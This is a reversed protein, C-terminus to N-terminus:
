EGTLGEDIMSLLVGLFSEPIDSQELERRVQMLNSIARKAVVDRAYLSEDTLSSQRERWMAFDAVAGEIQEEAADFDLM